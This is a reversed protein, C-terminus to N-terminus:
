GPVPLLRPETKPLFSELKMVPHPYRFKNLAFPIYMGEPYNDMFYTQFAYAPETQGNFKVGIQHFKMAFGFITYVAADVFTYLDINASRLHTDQIIIGNVKEKVFYLSCLDKLVENFCHSGDHQIIHRVNGSTSMVNKVYTPLDGYFMRVRTAAEPFLRRIREYTLRLYGKNVDILDLTKNLPVLSGALIVSAGGLYVGVEVIRDIDNSSLNIINFMDFYYKASCQDEYPITNRANLIRSIAADFLPNKNLFPTFDAKIGSPITIRYTETPNECTELDKDPSIFTGWEQDNLISNLYLNSFVYMPM